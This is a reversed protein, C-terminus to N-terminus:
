QLYQIIKEVAQNLKLETKVLYDKAGLDKAKTINLEGGLNSLILVPINKLDSDSKVKELFEFGHMRPLILDLLIITPKVKKLLDLGDQGDKASVVEFGRQNFAEKFVDVVALEDEIFLITKNDAM